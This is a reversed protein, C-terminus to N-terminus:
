TKVKLRKELRPGLSVVKPEVKFLRPVVLVVRVLSTIKRYVEEYIVINNKIPMTSHGDVEKSFGDIAMVHTVGFMVLKENQDVHLKHGM